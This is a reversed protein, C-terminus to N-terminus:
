IHIQIPQVNPGGLEKEANKQEEPAPQKLTERARRVSDPLNLQSSNDANMRLDRYLEEVTKEELREQKIIQQILKEFDAAKEEEMLQAPLKPAPMERLAVGNVLTQFTDAYVQGEPLIPWNEKPIDVPNPVPELGGNALRYYETNPDEEYSKRCNALEQLAVRGRLLKEACARKQEANLPLHEARAKALVYQAKRAEEEMQVIKVMGQLSKLSAPDMGKQLALQKLVPPKEQELLGLLEAGMVFAGRVQEPLKMPSDVNRVGKAIQNVGTAILAALADPKGDRYEELAKAADLRAPDVYYSFSAGEKDRKKSVMFFDTTGISRAGETIGLIREEESFGMRKLTPDLTPDYNKDHRANEMAHKPSWCAALALGAFQADTLPKGGIQIGKQDFARFKYPKGADQDPHLEYKKQLEADQAAFRQRLEAENDTLITLDRFQAESYYNEHKGKPHGDRRSLMAEQKDPAPKFTSVFQAKGIQVANMAKEAEKMENVLKDQVLQEARRTKEAELERKEQTLISARGEMNDRLKRILNDREQRFRDRAQRRSRYIRGFSLRNWFGQWRTLPPAENLPLEEPQVPKSYHLDPIGNRRIDIQLQVPAAEGAPYVFINGKRVEEFFAPDGPRFNMDSLLRPMPAGGADPAMCFMRPIFFKSNPVSGNPGLALGLKDFLWGELKNKLATCHQETLPQLGLRELSDGRPRIERNSAM